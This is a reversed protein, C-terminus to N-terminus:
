NSYNHGEFVKTMGFGYEKGKQQALDEAAQFIFQILLKDVLESCHTAEPISFSNDIKYSDLKSCFKGNKFDEFMKPLIKVCDQQTAKETFNLFPFTIHYTFKALAEIEALIIYYCLLLYYSLYFQVAQVLQNNSGSRRITELIHERHYLIGAADHRKKCFRRTKFSRLVIKINQEHTVQEFINHLSFTKGSPEILKMVAEIAVDAVCKGRVFSAM